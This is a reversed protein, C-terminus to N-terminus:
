GRMLYAAWILVYVIMNGAMDTVNSWRPWMLYWARPSGAPIDTTEGCAPRGAQCLRM